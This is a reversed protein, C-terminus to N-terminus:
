NFDKQQQLGRMNYSHYPPMKVLGFGAVIEDPLKPRVVLAVPSEILSNGNNAEIQASQEHSACKGNVMAAITSGVRRQCLEHTALLKNHSNQSGTNPGNAARM